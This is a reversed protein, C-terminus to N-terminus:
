PLCVSKNSVWQLLILSVRMCVRMRMQNISENTNTQVWRRKCLNYLGAAYKWVAPQRAASTISLSTKTVPLLDGDIPGDVAIHEGQAVLDLDVPV